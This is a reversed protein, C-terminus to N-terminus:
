HTSTMWREFDDQINENEFLDSNRRIIDFVTRMGSRTSLYNRIGLSPMYDDMNEGMTIRLFVVFVSLTGYHTDTVPNGDYESQFIYNEIAQVLSVTPDRDTFRQQISM